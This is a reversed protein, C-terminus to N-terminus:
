AKAFRIRKAGGYPFRTEGRVAPSSSGSPPKPASLTGGIRNRKGMSEERLNKEATREHVGVIFGQDHMDIVLSPPHGHVQSKPAQQVIKPESPSRPQGHGDVLLHYRARAPRIPREGLPISHKIM